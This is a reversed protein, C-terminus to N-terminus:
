FHLLHRSAKAQRRPEKLHLLYGRQCFEYLMKACQRANTGFRCHAKSIMHQIHICPIGPCQCSGDDLGLFLNAEAIGAKIEAVPIGASNTCRCLTVMRDDAHHLLGLIHSGHLAHPIEFANVMHQM